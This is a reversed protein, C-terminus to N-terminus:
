DKFSRSFSISGNHTDLQLASLYSVENDDVGQPLEAFFYLSGKSRVSDKHLPKLAAWVIERQENLSKVTERVWDSGAEQLAALAVRQSM